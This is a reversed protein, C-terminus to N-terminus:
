EHSYSLKANKDCAWDIPLKGAAIFKHISSHPWETPHFVYGHKVPNIHIYDVHNSFDREDKITREGYRRQWIGREGKNIRSKSIKETKEIHRSIQTKILWWRLAFDADNEPLTLITHIHDPLVVMADIQFLHNQMVHAISQRLLAIYETLLRSARNTLNVTFFYCGGKVSNRRHNAM